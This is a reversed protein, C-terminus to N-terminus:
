VPKIVKAVIIYHYFQLNVQKVADQKLIKCPFLHTISQLKILPTFLCDTQNCKLINM